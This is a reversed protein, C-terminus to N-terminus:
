SAGRRELWARCALKWDEAYCDDVYSLAEEFNRERYCAWALRLPRAVARFFQTRFSQAVGALFATLDEDWGPEGSQLPLPFVADCYHDNRAGLRLRRLTDEEFKATYIHLNHSYQHLRGVQTGLKGAVYEQLVSFHVANAGYAGWIADNSRCLVSMNLRGGRLDFYCHTNCPLDKSSLGGVGESTILDGNASWMELVARRSDPYRQLHEILVQLQDFGFWERWRFGYAGHLYEGDDSYTKMRQNYRSIWEVDNRGGLMWLAEMLHFFPNANRAPSFLVREQPRAYETLVPGPAVIVPGNRSEELKGAVHLWWLADSFADNVNRASILRAGNM